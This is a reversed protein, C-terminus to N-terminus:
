RNYLKTDIAYKKSNKELDLLNEESFTLKQFPESQLINHKKKKLYLFYGTTNIKQQKLQDTTLKAM